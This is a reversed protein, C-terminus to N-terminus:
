VKNYIVCNQFRTCLYHLNFVICFLVDFIKMKVVSACGAEILNRLLLPVGRQKVYWVM